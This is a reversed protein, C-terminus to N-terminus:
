MFLYKLTNFMQISHLSTKFFFSLDEEIQILRKSNFSVELGYDRKTFNVQTRYHVHSKLFPGQLRFMRKNSILYTKIVM